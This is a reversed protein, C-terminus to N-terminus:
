ISNPLSSNSENLQVSIAKIIKIGRRYLFGCQGNKPREGNSLDFLPLSMKRVLLVEYEDNQRGVTPTLTIIKEQGCEYISAEQAVIKNLILTRKNSDKYRTTPGLKALCNIELPKM